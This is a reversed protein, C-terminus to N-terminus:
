IDHDMINSFSVCPLWKRQTYMPERLYHVRTEVTKNNKSENSCIHKYVLAMLFNLDDQWRSRSTCTNIFKNNLCSIKNVFNVM